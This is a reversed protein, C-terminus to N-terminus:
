TNLTSNIIEVEKDAIAQEIKESIYDRLCILAESYNEVEDFVFDKVLLDGDVETISGFKKISM